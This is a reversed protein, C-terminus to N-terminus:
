GVMRTGSNQYSGAQRVVDGFMRSATLRANKSRYSMEIKQFERIRRELQPNKSPDVTNM